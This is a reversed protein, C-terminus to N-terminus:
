NYSISCFSEFQFHLAPRPCEFDLLIKFQLILEFTVYMKPQNPPNQRATSNCQYPDAVFLAIGDLKVHQFLAACAFLM